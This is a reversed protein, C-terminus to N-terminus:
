TPITKESKKHLQKFFFYLIVASIMMVTSIIEAQTIEMGAIKYTANVRIKEIWFREFGALFLYLSFMVGPVSIRKRLYWLVGFLAICAIAEYFPTPWVPCILEPVTGEPCGAHTVPNCIQAVNNPYTYAWMWDPLGPNPTNNPIGWDGDGSMHCGIRGVGYALMMAPGGVDLMHKWNIRYKNACYLVAAGGCILGGYFTLGAFPDAFAALPDKIFEDWHEMHDFVKAGILGAIAAVLTLTGMRQHPHIVVDKLVPEPYKKQMQLDDYYRMGVAVAAGLFGLVLSGDTSLLYQQPNDLLSSGMNFLLHLFKWGFIFGFFVTSAYDFIGGKKGFWKKAQMGQLLGESEKRKLELKMTYNALLFAIAVFFGFTNIIVLGYIEVGFLDKFLHYFNPYM